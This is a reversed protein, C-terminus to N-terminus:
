YLPRGHQRTVRDIVSFSLGPTAFTSLRNASSLHQAVLIIPGGEITKEYGKGALRSPWNSHSCHGIKKLNRDDFAAYHYAVSFRRGLKTPHTKAPKRGCVSQPRLGHDSVINI